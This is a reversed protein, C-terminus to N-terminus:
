VKEELVDEEQVLIREGVQFTGKIMQIEVLKPTVTKMVPINDFFPYVRTTPKMRKAKFQINRMRMWKRISLSVFKKGVRVKTAWFRKGITRKGWGKRKPGSRKKLVGKRTRKRGRKPIFDGGCARLRRKRRGKLKESQKGAYEGGRRRGGKTKTGKWHDRWDRWIVGGWGWNPNYRRKRLQRKTLWYKGKRDSVRRGGLNQRVWADTDPNLELIGQYFIDVFTTIPVNDTAYPQDIEVVEDYDLSIIRGTQRINEGIINTDFEPDLTRADVADTGIGLSNFTGLELDIQTTYPAARLEGEETDVSNKLVTLKLQNEADSFDDVFFGSKFRNLGNGDTIKLNATSSELLNLSTYYELQKIREELDGIDDMTYRKHDALEISAEDVDELYFRFYLPLLKLQQM